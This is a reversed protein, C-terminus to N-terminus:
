PKEKRYNRIMRDLEDDSPEQVMALTDDGVVAAARQKVLRRQDIAVSIVFAGGVTFLLVWAALACGVLVAAIPSLSTWALLAGVCVGAALFAAGVWAIM